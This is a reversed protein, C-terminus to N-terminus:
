SEIRLRGRQEKEERDAAPQRALAGEDRRAAALILELAGRLTVARPAEEAAQTGGGIKAASEQQREGWAGILFALSPARRGLRRTLLRAHAPPRAADLNSLVAMRAKSIDLENVKAPTVDEAGLVRTGVGHEIALHALIAAAARDLPNRVGISLVPAAVRWDQKLEDPELVALDPPPEPMGEVAKRPKGVEVDSLDEILEEVLSRMAVLRGPEFRGRRTDEQAMVLAPLAVEDFYTVLSQTKLLQEAEFTIEDIDGALMRQYFRQAPTLAPQDGLLVYIFNLQPVHRGLVILCVTLPVALLLGIPGWLWTWFSAAAIVALPTLGTSSGLLWPEMVQGMTFEGIVYVLLTVLVLSWGPDVAAALLLPFVAAIISGIYPVFRMLGALIGWLIPSPIGILWLVTAIVAGYVINMSTLTLFLRSLRRAADTMAATTREFDEGGFIRILRDRLEERQLLIFIVLIVILGSRAMPGLLPTIVNQYYELARPPPHHIEVPIPQQGTSTPSEEPAAEPRKELEEGLKELAETTREIVGAPAGPRPRLDRIKLRLTTEYYPLREALEALQSGMIAGISFIISFAFAVVLIVAPARAIRAKRLLVVLPTLVFSLLVALALPVFLESGLYLAAIVLGAVALALPLPPASGSRSEKYRTLDM